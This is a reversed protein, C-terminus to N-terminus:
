VGAPRGNGSSEADLGGTVTVIDALHMLRLTLRTAGLREADDEIEGLTEWLDRTALLEERVREREEAQGGREECANLALGLVGFTDRQRMWLLSTAMSLYGHIRAAIMPQALTEPGLPPTPELPPEGAVIRNANGA